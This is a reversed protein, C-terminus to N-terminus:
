VTLSLSTTVCLSGIPCVSWFVQAMVSSSKEHFGSLTFKKPFFICIFVACSGWAFISNSGKCLPCATHRQCFCVNSVHLFLLVIYLGSTTCQSFMHNTSFCFPVSLYQCLYLCVTHASWKTPFTQWITLYYLSVVMWCVRYVELFRNYVGCVWLFRNSLELFSIAFAGRSLLVFVCFLSWVCLHEIGVELIKKKKKKGLFSIKAM